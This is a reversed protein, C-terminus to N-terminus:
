IERYDTPRNINRRAQHRHPNVPKRFYASDEENPTPASFTNRQQNAFTTKAQGNPIMGHSGMFGNGPPMQGNFQGYSGHAVVGNHYGPGNMGNSQPAFGTGMWTNNWNNGSPGAFAGAQMMMPDQMGPGMTMLPAMSVPMGMTTGISTGMPMGMYGTVNPFAMSNLGQQQLLLNGNAFPLQNTFSMDSPLRPPQGTIPPKPGTDSSNRKMSGVNPGPPVRENKIEAEAPRKKATGNTLPNSIPTSAKSLANGTSSAPKEQTSILQLSDKTSPSKSGEKSPTQADNKEQEYERITAAMEGDPILNDISINDTSCEPCRLGNEILVNTICELCYTTQCCPIKTPEVYLRKDISCELGREQLEKSGRSVAEQAAASVKAKAQYQDWSAKDPEAVVWEGEANVM